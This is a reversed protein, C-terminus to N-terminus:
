DPRARGIVAAREDFGPARGVAAKAAAGIFRVEIVGAEGQQTQVPEVGQRGIGVFADPRVRRIKGRLGSTIVKIKDMRGAQGAADRERASIQGRREIPELHDLRKARGLAAKRFFWARRGAAGVARKKGDAGKIIQAQEGAILIFIVFANQKRKLAQALFAPAEGVRGVIRLRGGVRGRGGDHHELAHANRCFRDGTGGVRQQFGVMVEAAKAGIPERGGRVQKGGGRGQM